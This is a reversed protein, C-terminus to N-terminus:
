IRKAAILARLAALDAMLKSLEGPEHPLDSAMERILISIKAVLRVEAERMDDVTLSM